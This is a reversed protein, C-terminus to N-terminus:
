CMKPLHKGKGNMDNFFQIASVAAARNDYTGLEILEQDHRVKAVYGAKTKRIIVNHEIELNEIRNNYKDGDLHVMWCTPWHGHVLYWVLHHMLITQGAWRLIFGRPCKTGKIPHPLVVKERQGDIEVYELRWVNGDRYEFAEDITQPLVRKPKAKRQRVLRVPKDSATKASRAEGMPKRSKFLQELQDISLDVLDDYEYNAAMGRDILELRKLEQDTKGELEHPEYFKFHYM